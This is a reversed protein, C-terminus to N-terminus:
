FLGKFFKGIKKTRNVWKRNHERTEDKIRNGISRGKVDKGKMFADKLVKAQQTQDAKHAAYAMGGFVAGIGAGAVVGAPGAVAGFEAGTASALGVAIADGALAATAGGVAGGSIDSVSEQTDSNAGGKKLANKVGFRTAEGAVAGVASGITIGAVAKSFLTTGGSLGQNMVDSLAGTIAGSVAHNELVGTENNQGFSGSPDILNTIYGGAFMGLTGNILMIPHVADTVHQLISRKVAPHSLVENNNIRKMANSYRGHSLDEAVSLEDNNIRRM